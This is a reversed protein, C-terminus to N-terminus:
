LSCTSKRPWRSPWRFWRERRRREANVRKQRAVRARLAENIQTLAAQCDRAPEGQLSVAEAPIDLTRTALGVIRDFAAEPPTDFIDHARREAERNPIPTEM